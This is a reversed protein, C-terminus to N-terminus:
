DKKKVRYGGLKNAWAETYLWYYSRNYRSRYGRFLRNWILSPLGIFPLYLFLLIQSQIRHGYEHKIIDSKYCRDDAFIYKSLAIAGWKGRVHIIYADHYKYYPRKLIKAYIMFSLFGIINQPFELIIM